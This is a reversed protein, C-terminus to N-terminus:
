PHAYRVSLRECSKTAYARRNRGNARDCFANIYGIMSAQRQIENALRMLRSTAGINWPAPAALGKLTPNFPNILEIM